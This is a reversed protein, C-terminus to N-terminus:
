RLSNARVGFQELLDLTLKSLRFQNIDQRRLSVNWLMRDLVVKDILSVTGGGGM